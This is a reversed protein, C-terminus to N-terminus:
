FRLQGGIRLQRGSQIEEFVEYNENLINDVEVYLASRVGFRKGVRLNLIHAGDAKTGDGRLRQDLYFYSPQVFYGSDNLYQLGASAVFHPVNAFQREETPSSFEGRADNWGLNLFYTTERNLAGEAGLRLGRIRADTAGETSPSLASQHAEDLNQQFLGLRLLSGNHLTHNIELEFSRGTGFENDGVNYVSPRPLDDLSFLFQDHPSLLEFDEITGMVKRLRVQLGTRQNPRYDAILTPLVQTSTDEVQRPLPSFTSTLLQEYTVRQMKIEGTLKLSNTAQFEDRLYVELPRTERLVYVQLTPFPFPLPTISNDDFRRQGYSLGISLLHKEHWVRDHRV